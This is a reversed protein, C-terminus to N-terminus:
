TRKMHFTEHKANLVFASMVYQNMMLTNQVPSRHISTTARVGSHKHIPISSSSDTKGNHNHDHNDSDTNDSDTNDNTYGDSSKAMEIRRM